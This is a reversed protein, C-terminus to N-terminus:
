KTYKDEIKYEVGVPLEPLWDPPQLIIELIKNINKELEDNEPIELIIEDHVHFVIRIYSDFIIESGVSCFSRDLRLLTNALIDRSIGQILNEFIKSGYLKKKKIVGRCTRGEVGNRKDFELDFYRIKRGSPLCLIYPRGESCCEKIGRDLRTWLAIIKPNAKRFDEVIDKAALLTLNLGYASAQQVLSFASCGYGLALIRAKALAYKHPDSDKLTEGNKSSWGMTEEAHAQYISIGRRVKDLIRKDNILCLLVRPEIQSFDVILFKNKPKPIFLSRFDVGHVEGKPINQMNFGSSGSWRGTHPAGMYKLNYPMLYPPKRTIIRKRIAVARKYHANLSRYNKIALIFPYKKSMKDEWIIYDQSQKNFSKPPSLRMKICYERLKDVSLLRNDNDDGWPIENKFENLMQSMNMIHADLKERDICIGGKGWESTLFSLLRENEPWERNFKLWLKLCLRSDDLAYQKMEENNVLDEGFVGSAKTRTAKSSKEGLLEFVAKNLARSCQLYSVLDATCFWYSPVWHKKLINLQILREHVYGDFNQNHSVWVSNSFVDEWPAEKPSGVYELGDDGVISVLYADFRKDHVYRAPGLDAVSYGQKIYYTEYDIAYTIM